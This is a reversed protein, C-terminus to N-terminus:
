RVRSMWHAVKKTVMPSPGNLFISPCGIIDVHADGFGLEKLYAATLEGRVGVSASHDLVASMFDKVGDAVRDRSNRRETLKHQSGVGIVTVPIRLQQVMRTLRQLNPLFATRFANALPIVFGDFEDNVRQIYNGNLGARSALYGNPILEAGPVSLTRHVAQGFILNGVNNAITNQALVIESPIPTWPDKAARLLLRTM